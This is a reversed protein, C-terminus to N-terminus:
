KVEVSRLKACDKCFYVTHWGGYDNDEKSEFQYCEISCLKSCRAGNGDLSQCCVLESTKRPLGDSYSNM